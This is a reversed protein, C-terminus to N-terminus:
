HQEYVQEEQYGASKDRSHLSGSSRQSKVPTANHHLYDKVRRIYSNTDENRGQINHNSSQSSEM